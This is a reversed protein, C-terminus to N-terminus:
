FNVSTFAKQCSQCFTINPTLVEHQHLQNNIHILAEVVSVPNAETNESQAREFEMEKYHLAKAYAHCQWVCGFVENKTFSSVITLDKPAYRKLQPGQFDSTLLFHNKIMNWLSQRCSSRFKFFDETCSQHMMQRHAIVWIKLGQCFNVLNLLTGLIEAPINPSSFAM